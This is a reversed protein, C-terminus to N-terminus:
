SDKRKRMSGLAALGIGFLVLSAPAPVAATTGGTLFNPGFYADRGISSTPLGLSGGTVGFRSEVWAISAVTSISDVDVAMEDDTLDTAAIVYGNGVGLLIDAIDIYRFGDILTAGSGAAITASTLLTGSSDWIGIDHSELLGDGGDDFFGLDTVSTEAFVDFEWGYVFDPSASTRDSGTISLAPMAFAQGAFLTSVISICAAQM